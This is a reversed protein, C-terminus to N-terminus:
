ETPNTIPNGVMVPVVHVVDLTGNSIPELTIVTVQKLASLVSPLSIIVIARTADTTVVVMVVGVDLGVKSAPVEEVSDVKAPVALVVPDLIVLQVHTLLRPPLPVAEPVVEHDTVSRGSVTPVLMMVVVQVSLRPMVPWSTRDAVRDAPPPPSVGVIKTDCDPAPDASPDDQTFAHDRAVAFAAPLQPPPPDSM